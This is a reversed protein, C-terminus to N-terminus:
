LYKHMVVVRGNIIKIKSEALGRLKGYKEITNKIEELEM